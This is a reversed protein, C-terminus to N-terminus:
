VCVCVILTKSLVSFWRITLSWDQLKPSHPTGMMAMIGMFKIVQYCADQSSAGTGSFHPTVKENGNNGPESQGPM